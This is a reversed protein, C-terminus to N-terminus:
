RVANQLAFGQSVTFNRKTRLSVPPMAPERNRAGSHPESAESWRAPGSKISCFVARQSPNWSLLIHQHSVCGSDYVVLYALICLGSNETQFDLDSDPGSQGSDPWSQRIHAM